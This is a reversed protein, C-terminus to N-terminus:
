VAEKAKQQEHAFDGRLPMLDKAQYIMEWHRSRCVWVVKVLPIELGRHLWVDGPQLMEVLEVQTMSPYRDNGVLTLALDGPKFNHSM